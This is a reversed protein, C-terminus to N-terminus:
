TSSGSAARGLIFAAHMFGLILLYTGLIGAGSCLSQLGESVGGGLQVLDPDTLAPCSRNSLWGDSDLLSLDAGEAGVGVFDSPALDEGMDDDGDGEVLKSVACRLRHTEQLVACTAADGGTCVYSSECTGDGTVTGNGDGDGGGTGCLQQRQVALQACAISDGQCIYSGSCDGPTGVISGGQGEVACRARWLQYLQNCQIGDGSCSPPAKCDGGGSAKNDKEDGEGSDEGNTPDDPAIDANDGIGDGDSDKSENPDNPFADEEDPVGDGDTDKKPEPKDSTTCLGAVANTASDFTSWYKGVSPDEYAVYTCGQYCVYLPGSLWGTQEKRSACTEGVLYYSRLEYTCQSYSGSVRNLRCEFHHYGFAGSPIKVCGPGSFNGQSSAPLSSWFAQANANCDAWAMGEDCRGGDAPCATSAHASDVPAFYG